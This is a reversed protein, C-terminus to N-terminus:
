AQRTDVKNMLTGLRATARHGPEGYNRSVLSDNHARRRRVANYGQAEGRSTPPLCNFFCDIISLDGGGCRLIEIEISCKEVDTLEREVIERDLRWVDRGIRQAV